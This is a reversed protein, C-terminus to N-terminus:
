APTTRQSRNTRILASCPGPRCGPHGGCGQAAGELLLVGGGLGPRALWGAPAARAPAGCADPGFPAIARLIQLDADGTRTAGVVVLAQCAGGIARLAGGHCAARMGIEVCVLRANPASSSPERCARNRMRRDSM